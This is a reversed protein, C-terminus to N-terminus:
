LVLIARYDNVNTRTPGTTLLDGLGSFFGYSDHRALMQRAHPQRRLSDPTLLAGANDESGDIGDTDAAIAWVGGTEIGLSLLFEACRGGRGGEGRLTVTCEGGSILAVPPNWPSKRTAVERVLAAM